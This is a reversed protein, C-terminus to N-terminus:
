ANLVASAQEEIARAIKGKFLGLLWPLEANLVINNPGIILTGIVRQGKAKFSFENYYEKWNESLETISGANQAALRLFLSRLREKAADMTIHRPTPTTINLQSM